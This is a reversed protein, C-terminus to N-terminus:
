SRSLIGHKVIGSKGREVDREIPQATILAAERNPFVRRYGATVAKTSHRSRRFSNVAIMVVAYRGGDFRTSGTRAEVEGLSASRLQSVTPSRWGDTPRPIQDINSPSNM